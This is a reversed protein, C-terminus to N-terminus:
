LYFEDNNANEMHSGGDQGRTIKTHSVFSTRSVLALVHAQSVFAPVLHRSGCLFRLCHHIKNTVGSFHILGIHM